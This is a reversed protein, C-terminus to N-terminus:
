AYHEHEYGELAEFLPAFTEVDREYAKQVLVGIRGLSKTKAKGQGKVSVVTDRDALGLSVCDILATLERSVGQSPLIAIVFERGKGGFRLKEVVGRSMEVGEIKKVEKPDVSKLHIRAAAAFEKGVGGPTIYATYNMKNAMDVHVHNLFIALCDGNPRDNLAGEVRLSHMNMLKARQGWFAEGYEGERMARSRVGAIADLIYCGSDPMWLLSDAAAFMEEHSRPPDKEPDKGAEWHDILKIVGDFGSQAAASLLYSPDIAELWNYILRGQPQVCGGLYLGLSSKGRGPLGYLELISRKPIGLAPLLPEGLALDVGFLGTRIKGATQV